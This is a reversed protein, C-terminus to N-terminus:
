CSQLKPLRPGIGTLWVAMPCRTSIATSPPCPSSAPKPSCAPISMSASPYVAFPLGVMGAETQYSKVLAAEFKSTDYGSSAVYPAIDLWQGVFANSGVWGVPGVIDPGAGAAIETSITDRASANPIVEM